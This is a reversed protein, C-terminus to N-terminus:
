QVNGNHSIGLEARLARQQWMQKERFLAANQQQLMNLLEAAADDIKLDGDYIKLRVLGENSTVTDVERHQMM